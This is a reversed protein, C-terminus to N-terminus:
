PGPPGGRRRPALPPREEGARAAHAKARDRVAQRAHVPALHAHAREVLAVGVHGGLPRAARPEDLPAALAPTPPPAQPPHAPRPARPPRRRPRRRTDRATPSRGRARRRAHRLIFYLKYILANRRCVRADRRHANQRICVYILFIIVYFGLKTRPCSFCRKTRVHGRLLSKNRQANGNSRALEKAM